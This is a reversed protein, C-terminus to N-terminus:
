ILFLLWFQLPSDVVVVKEKTGLKYYESTNADNRMSIKSGTSKSSSSNSRLFEEAESQIKFKRYIPKTYGKVQKECETWSHFIGTQRGAAVAYFGAKKSMNRLGTIAFNSVINM